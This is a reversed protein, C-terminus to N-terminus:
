DPTIPKGDDESPVPDEPSLRAVGDEGIRPYGPPSAKHVILQHYPNPCRVIPPEYLYPVGRCDPIERLYSPSLDSLSAPRTGEDYDSEYMEFCTAINKLNSLCAAPSFGFYRPFGLLVAILMIFSGVQFPLRQTGKAWVLGLLVGAIALGGWFGLPFFIGMMFTAGTLVFAGFLTFGVSRTWLGIVLPVLLAVLVIPKPAVSFYSTPGSDMWGATYLPGEVM